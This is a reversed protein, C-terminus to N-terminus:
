YLPLDEMFCHKSCNLVILLARRQLETTKGAFQFIDYQAYSTHRRRTKLMESLCSPLISLSWKFNENIQSPIKGM